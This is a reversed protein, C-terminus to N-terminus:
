RRDLVLDQSELEDDEDFRSGRKTEARRLRRRVVQFFVSRPLLSALVKDRPREGLM